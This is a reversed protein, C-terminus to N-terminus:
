RTAAAVRDAVRARLEPLLAYLHEGPCATDRGTDRHGALAHLDVTTGAPFRTSPGGHSTTAVKARPDLGHRHALHALLHELADLAQPSPPALDFDGILVVGISDHNFGQAHAGLLVRGDPAGLDPGRAQWITGFPDIAWHYGIDDFGRGRHAACIARLADPVEDPHEVVPVHTHHLHIRRPRVAPETAPPCTGQPDWQARPVVTPAHVGIGDPPGALTVRGAEATSVAHGSPDAPVVQQSRDAVTVPHGSPGVPAAGVETVMLAWAAVALAVSRSRGRARRM